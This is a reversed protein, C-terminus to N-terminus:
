NEEYGEARKKRIKIIIYAAALCFVLAGASDILVDGASCVRGEVFYQHFEDSVAYLSAFGSALLARKMYNRRIGRFIGSAGLLLLGLIGFEMFHASKRIFLHFFDGKVFERLRAVAHGDGFWKSVNVLLGIVAKSLNSSAHGKLASNIFIFAM